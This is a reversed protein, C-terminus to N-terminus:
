PKGVWTIDLVWCGMNEDTGMVWKEDRVRMKIGIKEGWTLYVIYIIVRWTKKNREMNINSCFYM